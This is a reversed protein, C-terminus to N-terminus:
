FTFSRSSPLWSLIQWDLSKSSTSSSDAQSDFHACRSSVTSYSFVIPAGAAWQSCIGLCGALTRRWNKSNFIEFFSSSRSASALELEAEIGHQVVRYEHEQYAVRLSKNAVILVTSVYWMMAPLTATCVLCPVNRRNMGARALTISIHSQCSGFSSAFFRSFQILMESKCWSTRFNLYENWHFRVRHRDSAEM